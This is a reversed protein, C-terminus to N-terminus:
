LDESSLLKENQIALLPTKKDYFLPTEHVTKRESNTEPRLMVGAAFSFSLATSGDEMIHYAISVM